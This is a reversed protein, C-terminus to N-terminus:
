SIRTIAVRGRPETRLWERKEAEDVGYPWQNIGIDARRRILVPDEPESPM